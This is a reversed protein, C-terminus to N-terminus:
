TPPAAAGAMGPGAAQRRQKSMEYQIILRKIQAQIKPDLTQLAAARPGPEKPLKQIISAVSEAGASADGSQPRPNYDPPVASPQAGGSGAARPPAGAANPSNLKGWGALPTADGSASPSTNVLPSAGPANARGLRGAEIYDQVDKPGTALIQALGSQSIEPHQAAYALPGSPNNVASLMESRAAQKAALMQQLAGNTMDGGRFGALTKALAGFLGENHGFAPDIAANQLQQGQSAALLQAAQPDSSALISLLDAM